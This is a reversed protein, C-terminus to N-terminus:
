DYFKRRLRNIALDITHKPNIQYMIAQIITFQHEDRIRGKMGHMVDTIVKDISVVDECGKYKLAIQQILETGKKDQQKLKEKTMEKSTKKRNVIDVWFGDHFVRDSILTRNIIMEPPDVLYDGAAIVPPEPSGFEYTFEPGKYRPGKCIYQELKNNKGQDEWNVTKFHSTGKLKIGTENKLWTYFVKRTMPSPLVLAIHYHARDGLERSAILAHKRIFPGILNGSVDADEFLILHVARLIDDAPMKYKKPAFHKPTPVATGKSGPPCPTM